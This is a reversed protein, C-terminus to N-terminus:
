RCSIVFARTERRSPQKESSISGTVDDPDARRHGESVKFGKSECFSDAIIKGCGGPKELCEGTGYGEQDLIVFHRQRPAADRAATTKDQAIGTAVLEGGVLTAAVTACAIMFLRGSPMPAAGVRCKVKSAHAFVTLLPNFKVNKRRCPVFALHCHHHDM